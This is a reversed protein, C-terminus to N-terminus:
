LVKCSWQIYIHYDFLAKSDHYCNNKKKFISRYYLHCCVLWLYIGIMKDHSSLKLLVQDRPAATFRTNPDATFLLNGTIVLVIQTIHLLIDSSWCLRTHVEGKLHSLGFPQIEIYLFLFDNTLKFSDYQVIYVMWRLLHSHFCMSASFMKRVGKLILCRTLIWSKVHELLM